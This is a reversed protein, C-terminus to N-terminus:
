FEDGGVKKLDNRGTSVSQEVPFSPCTSLVKLKGSVLSNEGPPHTLM